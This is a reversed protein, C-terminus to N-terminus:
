WRIHERHARHRQPSIHNHMRIDDAGIGGNIGGGANLTMRPLDSIQRHSKGVDKRTDDNNGGEANVDGSAFSQREPLRRRDFATKRRKIQRRNRLAFSRGAANTPDAGDRLAKFCYAATGINSKPM